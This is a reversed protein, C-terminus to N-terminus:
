GVLAQLATQLARDVAEDVVQRFPQYGAMSTDKAALPNGDIALVAGAQVRHLAAIVLLPAVEMEVAVCGAQQWLLHDSGLLAHPYFLDSTLVVGRHVDAGSSAAHESLAVVLATDAVAPFSLPVLHQSLGDGRVAATAVVLAGDLVDPQLGGATGSRIIREAGGRCLEEFAVGAGAAGVGHSVVSVAVGQFSGTFTVYERNEGVRRPDELLAAAKRARGPDGVVLVRSALDRVQVQMLPLTDDPGLRLATSPMAAEQHDTGDTGTM